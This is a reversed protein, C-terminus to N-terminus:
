GYELWNAGSLGGVGSGPSHEGEDAEAQVVFTRDGDLSLLGEPVRVARERLEVGASQDAGRDLFEFRIVPDVDLDPVPCADFLLGVPNEVRGFVLADDEEGRAIRHDRRRVDIQPEPGM